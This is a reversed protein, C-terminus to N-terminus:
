IGGDGVGIAAYPHIGNERAENVGFHHAILVRGHACLRDTVSRHLSDACGLLHSVNNDKQRAVISTINGSSQHRHIAPKGRTSCSISNSETTWTTIRMRPLALEGALQRYSRLYIRITPRERTFENAVNLM